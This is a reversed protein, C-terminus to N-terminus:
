IHIIKKQNQQIPLIAYPPGCIVWVAYYDCKGPKSQKKIELIADEYNLVIELDIGYHDAASKICMINEVEEDELEEDKKRKKLQNLEEQNPKLIYEPRVFMSENESLDCTWLMVILIKHGKLCDQVYLEKNLGVPNKLGHIGEKFETEKNYFNDFADLEVQISKLEEKLDQYTPNKSTELIEKILIPIDANSGSNLGKMKDITDSIQEGFFSAIGKLLNNPNLSIIIQPFLNEMGKPYIGMGIGFRNIGSQICLNSYEKIREKEDKEFLGDTLVFIYSTREYNKYRRLDFASFIASSLNINNFPYKLVTFLSKWLESKNSLARSTGIDSCLIYPNKETAIILDFSPIDILALSSLLIRITEFSHSASLENFCSISCDIIVTVSYNRIFGRKEELYIKPEPSPNILHLLLATIDIETGTTSLVKQSAKNPKFITDLYAFNIKRRKEIFDNSIFNWFDNQINPSIHGSSIKNIKNKYYQYNAQFTKINSCNYNRNQNLYIDKVQSFDSKLLSKFYEISNIMLDNNIEFNPPFPEKEINEYEINKRIMGYIFTQKLTKIISSDLISSIIGIKLSSKSLSNNYEEFERWIKELINLNDNNSFKSKIFFFGYSFNENNFVNNPWLDKQVLSEDLGDTFMFITRYPRNGKIPYGMLQEAFKLSSAIKTRYRRILLCDLIKQLNEKSHPEDFHKLIIKFKEDAILAISYPIELYYLANTIACVLYMNYIKNEDCIFYSCDILINVCIKKYPIENESAEIIFQSSLSLSQKMLKEVPFRSSNNKLNKPEFNEYKELIPLPPAEKREILKKMDKM